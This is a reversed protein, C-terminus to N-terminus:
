RKHGAWRTAPSLPSTVAGGQPATDARDATAGLPQHFNLTGVRARMQDRGTFMRSRNHLLLLLLIDRDEQRCDVV